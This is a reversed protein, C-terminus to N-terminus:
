IKIDAINHIISIISFIFDFSILIVFNLFIKTCTYRAKIGAELGIM